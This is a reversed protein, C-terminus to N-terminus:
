VCFQGYNQYMLKRKLTYGYAAYTNSLLEPFGLDLGKEDMFRFVWFPKSVQRGTERDGAADQALISRLNQGHDDLAGYGNCVQPLWRAPALGPQSTLSEWGGDQRGRGLLLALEHRTLGLSAQWKSSNRPRQGTATPRPQGPGPEYRATGGQRIWGNQHATWCLSSTHSPQPTRPGLTNLWGEAETGSSQAKRM